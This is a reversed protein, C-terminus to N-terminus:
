LRSSLTGEPIGLQQAVEKRSRAQLECLVIPTQYKEPLRSLEHELLPRWDQAEAIPVAPPPAQDVSKERARRRARMARAEQATRYAVRYLWSGVAERRLVAGAK